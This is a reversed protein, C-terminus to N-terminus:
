KRSETSPDGSEGGPRKERDAREREKEVAGPAPGPHGSDRGGRDTTAGGGEVADADSEFQDPKRPNEAM